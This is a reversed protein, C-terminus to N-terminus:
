NGQSHPTILSMRDERAARPPSSNMQIRSCDGTRCCTAEDRLGNCAQHGLACAFLTPYFGLLLVQSIVDEPLHSSTRSLGLRSTKRRAKGLLGAGESM